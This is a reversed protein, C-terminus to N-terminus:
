THFTLVRVMLFFRFNTLMIMNLKEKIISWIQQIWIDSFKTGHHQSFLTFLKLMLRNSFQSRLDVIRRFKVYIVESMHNVRLFSHCFHDNQVLFGNTACAVNICVFNQESCFNMRFFVNRFKGLLLNLGNNTMTFNNDVVCNFILSSRDSSERCIM